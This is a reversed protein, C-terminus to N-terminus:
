DQHERLGALLMSTVGWAVLGLAFAALISRLRKPETSKDPLNPQVIRELYVQKRSAENRAEELSTMAGALQRDAFQSELFLRQYRAADGALSGSGGAVKATEGAIEGELGAARKTLLEIQPNKPALMRLEELQTRTALLEDQLKSILQINVTAQKEPDVIGKENRYASLALAAERDKAEAELVERMSFRILDQRAQENLRNVLGESLVLLHENITYADRPTFARVTLKTDEASSDHQLSVKGQFYLFLAEFSNDLGPYPFRDFIDVAPNGYARSVTGDQNLARLADRSRAYDIVAYVEDNSTGFSGSKLLMGLSPTAQKDPTRIIFTSQSVYVNSAFIGFYLIALTTPIVVTFLFVRDLARLRSLIAIPM